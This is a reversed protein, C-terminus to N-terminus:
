VSRKYLPVEMVYKEIPDRWVVRMQQWVIGREKAEPLDQIYRMMRHIETDVLWMDDGIVSCATEDDLDVWASPGAYYYMVEEEGTDPDKFIGDPKMHDLPNITM